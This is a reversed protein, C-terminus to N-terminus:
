PALIRIGLWLPLGAYLLALASRELVVRVRAAAQPQWWWLGVWALSEVLLRLGSATIAVGLAWAAWWIVLGRLYALAGFTYFEGFFGGYAIHQHLSFAPLALMLPLLLFKIGPRALRTHPRWQQAWAYWDARTRTTQPALQAGQARLAELFRQPCPMMLHCTSQDAHALSLGPGPWPARWVTAAALQALPWTTERGSKMRLRLRGSELHAQASCASLLSWAAVEPAVVLAAFYRLQELAQGRFSPDLLWVLGLGILSVRATGRLGASLWRVAQPVVRVQVPWQLAPLAPAAWQLRGLLAALVLLGLALAAVPGVWDGWRVLLTPQPQPVPLAGVVLTRQGFEGAALVSGRPDIVASYGNTTVRFQPLGTEISRFAAVSQHLRAGLPNTSFWADNSLTLLARAGLRAGEIALAPDVDDRCILPQVAVDQGNRLRLPFVRAGPGPQWRGLWPLLRQVWPGDLWAPTYETLPFLRAKRYMGLLGQGPQVFAAANYEGGDDRDYTGFVFPVEAANVVSLIEQDLEAGGASKPKGFTTPYITESWLVADANQRTVADFSMAYHTDLVERVVAYAGQQRRRSEYDALNAQVLGMRLVPDQSESRPQGLSAGYLTPALPLAILLAVFGAMSAGDAQRQEADQGRLRARAAHRLAQLLLEQFLLLLLTLGAVGGLAAAQRLHEAPYLGHGLSDGLLKPFAWEVAVWAAAAAASRVVLGYRRGAWHRVLAWVIIQPQFLPALLLLVALGLGTPWQAYHDIASGFWGFGAAVYALTMLWARLLQRATSAPQDMWWLWPLLAVWGLWWLGRIYLGALLAGALLALAPLLWPKSKLIRM